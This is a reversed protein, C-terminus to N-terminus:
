LSRLPPYAQEMAASVWADLLKQSPDDVSLFHIGIGVMEPREADPLCGQVYCVAALIPTKPLKPHHLLLNELV